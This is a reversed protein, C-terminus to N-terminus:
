ITAVRKRCCKRHPLTQFFPLDLFILHVLFEAGLQTGGLGVSTEPWHHQEGDVGTEMTPGLHAGFDSQSFHRIASRTESLSTKTNTFIVIKNHLVHGLAHHQDM